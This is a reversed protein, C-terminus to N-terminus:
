RASRLKWLLFACKLLQSVKCQVRRNNLCDHFIDFAEAIVSSPERQCVNYVM